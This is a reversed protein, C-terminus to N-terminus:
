QEFWESAARRRLGCAVFGRGEDHRGSGVLVVRQHPRQRARRGDLTTAAAGDQAYVHPLVCVVELSRKLSTVARVAAVIASCWNQLIVSLLLVTCDLSSQCHHTVQCTKVLIHARRSTGGETSSDGESSTAWAHKTGWLAVCCSNDGASM